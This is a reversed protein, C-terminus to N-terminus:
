PTYAKVQFLAVYKGSGFLSVIALGQHGDWHMRFPNRVVPLAPQLGIYRLAGPQFPIEETPVLQMWDARGDIFTIEIGNGYECKRGQYTERCEAPPGLAGAIDQESGGRLALVDLLLENAMASHPGLLLLVGALWHTMAVPRM